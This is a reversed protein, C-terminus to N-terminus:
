ERGQEIAARLVDDDLFSDMAERRTRIRRMLVSRNVRSPAFAHELTVLILKNLSRGTEDAAQRLRQHLGEPVEKITINM